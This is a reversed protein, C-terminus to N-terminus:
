QPDRKMLWMHQRATPSEDNPAVLDLEEVTKYGFYKYLEENEKSETELYVPVKLSDAAQHLTTLLKKGYGQGHQDSRVGISLLYIWRKISKMHENRRKALVKVADLRKQSNPGYSQKEKFMPPIGYKLLSLFMKLISEEHDSSVLMNMAGVVENNRGKIVMPVSGRHVNFSVQFMWKNMKAMKKENDITNDERIDNEVANDEQLDAMWVFLPDKMFADTFTAIADEKDAASMFSVSDNAFPKLAEALETTSLKGGGGFM